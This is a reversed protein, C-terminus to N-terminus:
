TVFLKFMKFSLIFIRSPNIAFHPAWPTLTMKCLLGCTLISFVVPLKWHTGVSWKKEVTFGNYM